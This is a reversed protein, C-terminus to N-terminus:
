KNQLYNEIEAKDKLQKILDQTGEYINKQRLNGEIDKKVDKYKKDKYVTDKNREFYTKMEADTPVLKKKLLEKVILQLKLQERVQDITMNNANLNDQFAKEDPFQKKIQAVRDDIQKDSITVKRKKAEQLILKETIMQELVQKGARTKLRANLETESIAEGNVKAVSNRSCGTGTVAIVILIVILVASKFVKLFGSM